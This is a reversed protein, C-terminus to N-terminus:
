LLKFSINNGKVFIISVNIISMEKIFYTKLDRIEGPELSSLDIKLPEGVPAQTHGAEPLM